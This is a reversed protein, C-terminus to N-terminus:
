RSREVGSGDGTVRPQPSESSFSPKVRLQNMVDKIGRVSAAVREAEHKMERTRVTGVLTVEADAVHVELDSWDQPQSALRECIDEKMREDSRVYGKPAKGIQPQEPSPGCGDHERYQSGYGQEGMARGHPVVEWHARGSQWGDRDDRSADRGYAYDRTSMGREVAPAGTPSYAARGSEECYEHSGARYPDHAPHTSANRDSGARDRDDDRQPALARGAGDHQSSRGNRNRDNM